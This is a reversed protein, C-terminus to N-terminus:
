TYATFVDKCGADTKWGLSCCCCCLVYNARALAHTHVAHTPLDQSRKFAEFMTDVEYIVHCTSYLLGAIFCPRRINVQWIPVATTSLYGLLVSVWGCRRTSYHSTTHRSAVHHSTMQRPHSTGSRSTAHFPSCLLSLQM